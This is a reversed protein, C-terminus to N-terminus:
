AEIRLLGELSRLKMEHNEYKFYGDPFLTAQIKNM